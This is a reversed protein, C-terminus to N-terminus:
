FSKWISYYLVVILLSTINGIFFYDHSIKTGNEPLFRTGIKIAVFAILAQPLNHILCLFLFLRELIGKIVSINIKYVINKELSYEMFKFIITAIIEGIIFILLFPVLKPM